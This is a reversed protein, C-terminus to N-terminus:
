KGEQKKRCTFYFSSWQSLPFSHFACAHIAVVPGYWENWDPFPVARLCQVESSEKGKVSETTRGPRINRSKVSEPVIFGDKM